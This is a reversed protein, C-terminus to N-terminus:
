RTSVKFVETVQIGPIAPPIDRDQMAKLRALIERRKPTLDVLDPCARYLAVIDTVTYDLVPKAKAVSPSTAAIAAQAAKQQAELRAREAAEAEAKAAAQSAVDDLTMQDANAARKAAEEAERKAREAELRLREAEAAQRRAEAEAERRKREQEAAYNAILGNIRKEETSTPAGFDAAAKDIKRGLDLVPEKVDKRSKELRLRFDALSKLAQRAIACSQEDTVESISSADALLKARLAEAEPAITLGYGDGTLILTTKENNKM